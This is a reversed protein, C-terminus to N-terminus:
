PIIGEKDLRRLLEIDKEATLDVDVQFGWGKSLSICTPERWIRYAYTLKYYSSFTFVFVVYVFLFINNCKSVAFASFLRFLLECVVVSIILGAGRLFFSSKIRLCAFFSVFCCITKRLKRNNSTTLSKSTSRSRRRRRPTMKMTAKPVCDITVGFAWWRQRRM